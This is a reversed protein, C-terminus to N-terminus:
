RINRGKNKKVLLCVVLIIITVLLIVFVFTAGGVAGGVIAGTNEASATMINLKLACTVVVCTRIWGRDPLSTAGNEVLKGYAINQTMDDDREEANSHGSNMTDVQVYELDPTNISEYTTPPNLTTITIPEYAIAMPESYVEGMNELTNPSWTLNTAGNEVLRGYAINQTTDGDREDAYFVEGMNELTNPSRTERNPYSFSNM